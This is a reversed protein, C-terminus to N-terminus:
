REELYAIYDKLITTCDSMDTVDAVCMDGHGAVIEHIYRFCKNSVPSLCTNCGATFGINELTIQEDRLYCAKLLRRAGDRIKGRLLWLGGLTSAAVMGGGILTDINM